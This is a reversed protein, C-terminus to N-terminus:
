SGVQAQILDFHVHLEKRAGLSNPDSGDYGSRSLFGIEAVRFGALEVVSNQPTEPTLKPALAAFFQPLVNGPLM